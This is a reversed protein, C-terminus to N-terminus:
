PGGGYANGAPVVPVPAPAPVAAAGPAVTRTSGNGLAPAPAPALAPALVPTLDVVPTLTVQGMDVRGARPAVFRTFNQLSATVESAPAITWLQPPVGPAELKVNLFDLYPGIKQNFPSNSPVSLVQGLCVSMRVNEQGPVHLIGTLHLTHAAQDNRLAEEIRSNLDQQRAENAYYMAVAQFALGLVFIGLGPVTTGLQFLDGFKLNVAGGRGRSGALKVAGSAVLALGGLVLAAGTAGVILVTASFLDM